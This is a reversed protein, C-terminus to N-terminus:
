SKPSRRHRVAALGRLRERSVPAPVRRSWGPAPLPLGRRRPAAGSASPCCATGAAAARVQSAKHFQKKLGAM